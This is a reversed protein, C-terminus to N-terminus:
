RATKAKAADALRREVEARPKVGNMRQGDAYFVTPTLNIGLLGILKRVEAVPARCEAPATPVSEKTMVRDWAAARNKACWVAHAKSVSDEGLFTVVFTYVTIDGIDKLTRHLQRCYSCNPDEFTYITRSGKGHVTKVAYKVPLRAVNIPQKQYDPDLLDVIGELEADAAWNDSAKPADAAMAGAPLLASGTATLAAFLLAPLGIRHCPTLASTV